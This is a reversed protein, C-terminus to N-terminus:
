TYLLYLLTSGGQEGTGASQRVLDTEVSKCSSLRPNM